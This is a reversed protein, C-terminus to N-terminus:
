PSDSSGSSSDSSDTVLRPAPRRPVHVVDGEPISLPVPHRIPKRIPGVQPLARLILPKKPMPRKGIKQVDATPSVTSAVSPAPATQEDKSPSSPTQASFPQGFNNHLSAGTHRSSRIHTCPFLIYSSSGARSTSFSCYFDIEGYQGHSLNNGFEISQGALSTQSNQRRTEEEEWRNRIEENKQKLWANDSLLADNSVLLGDRETRLTAFDIQEGQLYRQKHEECEKQFTELQRRLKANEELVVSYQLRTNTLEAQLASAHKAKQREFIATIEEVGCLLGQSIRPPETQAVNTALQMTHLHQSDGNM